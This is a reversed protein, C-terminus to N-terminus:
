GTIPKSFDRLGLPFPHTYGFPLRAEGYSRLLGKTCCQREGECVYVPTIRCCTTMAVFGSFVSPSFVSPFIFFFNLMIKRFNLIIHTYIHIYACVCIHTCIFTEQKEKLSPRLIFAISAIYLNLLIFHGKNGIQSKQLKKIKFPEKQLRTKQSNITSKDKSEWSMWIIVTIGNMSALM